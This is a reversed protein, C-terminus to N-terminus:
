RIALREFEEERVEFVSGRIEKLGDENWVGMTRLPPRYIHLSVARASKPILRHLVAPGTDCLDGEPRMRSDALSPKDRPTTFREELLTGSLVAMGGLVGRHDHIPTIQGSEWAILMVEWDEWLLIAHRVYQAPDFRIRDLYREAEAALREVLSFPTPRDPAKAAQILFDRCTDALPM